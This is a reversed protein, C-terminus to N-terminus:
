KLEPLDRLSLRAVAVSVGARWIPKLRLLHGSHVLDESTSPGFYAARVQTNDQLERLRHVHVALDHALLLDPGGDYGILIRKWWDLAEGKLTRQMCWLFFAGLWEGVPFEKWTCQMGELTLREECQQDFACFPAEKSDDDIDFTVGITLLNNRLRLYEEEAYHLDLESAGLVRPGALKVADKRTAGPLAVFNDPPLDPRGAEFLGYLRVRTGCRNPGGQRSVYRLHLQLRNVTWYRRLCVPCTAGHIRGHEANRWDHKQIRHLRLARKNRFTMGCECQCQAQHLLDLLTDEEGGRECARGSLKPLLLVHKLGAQKVLRKWGARACQWHPQLAVFTEGWDSLDMASALWKLDEELGARWGDPLEDFERQLECGLFRPGHRVLRAALLLRHQALRVRVPVCQARVLIDVDTLVQNGEFKNQRLTRRLLTGQCTRLRRMDQARLLPWAGCGYYLKTFILAELLFLRTSEQMASNTFIQRSMSRFASWAQGIRRHIEQGLSGGASLTTGLHKYQAGLSLARPGPGLCFTDLELRPQLRLQERAQKAGFGAPTLLAESKGKSMNLTMGKKMFAKEIELFIQGVEVFLMDNSSALVPVALDDAWVISAGITGCKERMQHQQPRASIATELEGVVPGMLCHFMADALPSGPRTGRTTRVAEGHLTAWTRSHLERLLRTVMCDPLLRPAQLLQSIDDSTLGEQHLTQQLIRLDEADGLDPGLILERTVSHFAARLDIFIVAAAVQRHYARRMFTQIYLSGFACEQHAFGGLQGPPRDQAAWAMVQPRLLAHVRRVLVGLLMIGRYQAASTPLPTKPLMHLVGGKWQVPEQSTLLMKLVLDFVWPALSDAGAHIWESPLGDPGPAKGPRTSRLSNEVQVLSPIEELTCPLPCSSHDPEHQLLEQYLTELRVAAGAELHPRWQDRLLEQQVAPRAQQRAKSKPLHRKVLQWLAKIRAPQDCSKWEAQLTDFFIQTDRRQLFTARNRECRFAVFVSGWSRTLLADEQCCADWHWDLDSGLWRWAVFCAKLGLLKQAYQIRLLQGRYFAKNRIALRTEAAFHPKRHFSQRKQLVQHVGASFRSTLEHAHQHVDLTWDIPPMYGVAWAMHQRADQIEELPQLPVPRQVGQYVESGPLLCRLELCAAHHDHLHGHAQLQFDVWSQLSEYRWRKPAAIYDIRSHGGTPHTWTHGPGVHCEDFTSPVWLSWAQLFEHLREGNLNEKRLM